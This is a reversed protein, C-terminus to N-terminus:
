KSDATDRESGDSHDAFKEYLTIPTPAAAPPLFPAPAPAVLLDLSPTPVSPINNRGTTPALATAKEALRFAVQM